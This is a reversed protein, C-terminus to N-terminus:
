KNEVTYLRVIDEHLEGDEFQESFRDYMEQTIRSKINGLFDTKDKESEITEYEDSIYMMSRASTRQLIDTSITMGNESLEKELEIDNSKIESVYEEVSSLHKEYKSESCACLNIVLVIFLLISTIKKM